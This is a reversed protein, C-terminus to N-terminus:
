NSITQDYAAALAEINQNSSTNILNSDKQLLLSNMFLFLTLACIILIPKIALRERANADKGMRATLRTHFYPPADIEQMKSFLELDQDFKIENKHKM